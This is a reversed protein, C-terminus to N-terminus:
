YTCPSEAAGQTLRQLAILIHLQQRWRGFSIGTERKLIRALTRPSLGSATGVLRDHRAQPPHAMRAAAIRRRRVNFPM